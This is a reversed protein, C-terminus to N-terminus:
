KITNLVVQPMLRQIVAYEAAQSGSCMVNAAGTATSLRAAEELPLGLIEAVAMAAVVSDGAGVTSGVPVKLGQAHISKERTVYLAGLSGMSVVVNEIGRAVLEKAGDLIADLNPLKRGLIRALEQENPKVLYPLAELGKKMAAGDADLFVKAGMERCRTIWTKYTDAPAGKPLSGSLVVIDGPVIRVCLRELLQSLVQPTVELGPENIDTNTGQVPDVIKLNTRTEGTVFTIERELGLKDMADAIMRGTNGGLLAFTVSRRGLKSVVKSVNIGKGGPDTRLTTIRNVTNTTLNPVEVTKDLAPNLTVTFIM